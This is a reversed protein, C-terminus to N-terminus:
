WKVQVTVAFNRPLAPYFYRPARGSFTPANILIMSAYQENFINQVSLSTNFVLKGTLTGEYRLGADVTNWDKVEVTNADDAFQSGIYRYVINFKLQHPLRVILESHVQSRPIGPLHNGTYESGENTFSRFRNESLSASLSYELWQFPHYRLIGELGKLLSSGANAGYFVDESPRMTVLLDDLFITYLSGQVALKSNFLWSKFGADVTWGQEPRLAANMMGDSGLSEEVTPTSFGHGVSGYVLLQDSVEYVIGAMPSVIPKGSFRDSSVAPLHHNLQYATLNINAALSLRLQDHPKVEMSLFGNLHSRLEQADTLVTHSTNAMTQWSYRETLGEMGIAAILGPTTYRLSEQFSFTVSEDDLINFPRLEYQDYRNTTLLLTNTWRSHIPTELRLGALMRKYEKYGKVALWNPAASGPSTRFTNEDVSSPTFAKVDSLMLMYKLEGLESLYQEGTLLGSTREFASNERFGKGSLRAVATMLKGSSYGVSASGTFKLLGFSGATIGADASSLAFSCDTLLPNDTTSHHNFLSTKGSENSFSRTKFRVAGGIGGGYWASYSGKTIEAREVFSLEIDDFVSTGDGGTLPIDNLYVRTRNTGYQSRSGIGRLTLKLTQFTGSQLHVGPVSSLSSSLDGILNLQLQDRTVFQVPAALSRLSQPYRAATVQIDDLRVSDQISIYEQSQVPQACYIVTCTIFAFRILRLIRYLFSCIFIMTSIGIRNFCNDDAKM